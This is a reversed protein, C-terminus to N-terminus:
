RLNSGCTSGDAVVVSLPNLATPICRRQSEEAGNARKRRAQLAKRRGLGNVVLDSVDVGDGQRIAPELRSGGRSARFETAARRTWPQIACCQLAIKCRSIICLISSFARCFRAPLVARSADKSLSRGRLQM